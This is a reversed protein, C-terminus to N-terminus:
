EGWVGAFEYAKVLENGIIWADHEPTLSYSNVAIYTFETADIEMIAKNSKELISM